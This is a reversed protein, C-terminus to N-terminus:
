HFIKVSHFSKWEISDKYRYDSSVNQNLPSFKCTMATNDTQDKKKLCNLTMRWLMYAM